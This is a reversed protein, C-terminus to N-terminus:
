HLTMSIKKEADLFEHKSHLVPPTLGIRYTEIPTRYLFSYDLSGAMTAAPSAFPVLTIEDRVTARGTPQCFGSRRLRGLQAPHRSGRSYELGPDLLQSASKARLVAFM